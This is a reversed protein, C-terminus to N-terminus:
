EVCQHRMGPPREPEADRAHRTDALAGEDLRQAQVQDFLTVADRHKGDVWRRADRATRDQTVLRAHLPERHLGIRIDAGARGAARETAHRLHRALRHTHELRGAEVDHDDLRDADALALARHGAHGVHEHQQLQGVGTVVQLRDLFAHHLEGIQDDDVLGVQVFRRRRARARLDRRRQAQEPQLASGIMRMVVRRDPMRLHQLQRRQLFGPNGVEPARHALEAVQLGPVSPQLCAAMRLFLGPHPLADLRLELLAKSATRSPRTAADTAARRRSSRKL